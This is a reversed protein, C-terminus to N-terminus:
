FRVRVGAPVVTLYVQRQRQAGLLSGCVISAVGSPAAIGAMIYSGLAWNTAKRVTAPCSSGFGDDVCDPLDSIERTAKVYFVVSLISALGAIVGTAITANRLSADYAEAADRKSSRERRGEAALQRAERIEAAEDAVAEPAPSPAALQRRQYDREARKARLEDKQEATLSAWTSEDDLDIVIATSTPAPAPPDAPPEEEISTAEEATAAPEDGFPDSAPGVAVVIAVLLM